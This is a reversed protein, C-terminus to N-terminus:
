FVDRHCNKCIEMASKMPFRVLFATDASHPDHCSVCCFRKGKRFPDKIRKRDDMEKVMGVPHGKGATGNILHRESLATAHCMGCLRVPETVLLSAYRSSHPDHCKLCLGAAAPGHQVNKTFLARDHCGNCLEPVPAKLLMGTRSAHPNHCSGCGTELAPHIHKNVFNKEDHCSYCLRPPDALLGRKMSNIIRHPIESADIGGHCSVCGMSLATHAKLGATLEGHCALCDIEDRAYAPGASAAAFLLLAFAIIRIKGITGM